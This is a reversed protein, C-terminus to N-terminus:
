RSQNKRRRIRAVGSIIDIDVSESYYGNSEGVWRSILTENNATFTLTTRTWHEYLKRDSAEPRECEYEVEGEGEEVEITLDVFGGILRKAEGDISEIIVSECCDQNHHILIVNGTETTLLIENREEDIDIFTLRERQILRMTLAEMLIDAPKKRSM